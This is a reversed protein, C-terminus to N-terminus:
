SLACVQRVRHTDWYIPRWESIKGDKFRFLEATPGEYVEGTARATARMWLYVIVLDGGAVLEEIEVRLHSWASFMGVVGARAGELGSFSGGYPLSSAEHFEVDVALLAFLAGQDGAIMARYAAEIARRNRAAGETLGSSVSPALILEFAPAQTTEIQQTM